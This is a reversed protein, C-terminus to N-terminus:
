VRKWQLHRSIAELGKFTNQNIIDRISDKSYGSMILDNIDKEKMNNPWIVVKYGGHIARLVNTVVDTNRPENDYIVVAKTMDVAIKMLESSIKGGATAIANDVFMSDIPGEFVYFTYNFNVTDLGYIKPHNHDFIITIYRLRADDKKGLSRGQFGFMKRNQNFMPIVVREEDYEIDTYKEPIVSHTWKKFEPTYYLKEQYERPILRNQIYRLAHHNKPLKLLPTLDKLHKNNAETQTYEKYSEEPIPGYTQVMKEKLYHDYMGHDVEKLFREFPMTESCNHCHFRYKGGQEYFYARSKNKNTQSDGCLPCRFNFLTGSKRKFKDFRNSLLLIYKQELWTM